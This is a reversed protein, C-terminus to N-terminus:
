GHRAQTQSACKLAAAAHLQQQAHQVFAHEPAVDEHIPHASDSAIRQQLGGSISVMNSLMFASACALVLKSRAPVADSWQRLLTPPEDSPQAAVPLEVLESSRSSITKGASVRASSVVPRALALPCALLRAPRAPCCSGASRRSLLM